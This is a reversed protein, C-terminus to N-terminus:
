GCITFTKYGHNNNYLIKVGNVNFIENYGFDGRDGPVLRGYLNNDLITKAIKNYTGYGREGPQDGANYGEQGVYALDELRCGLAQAQFRLMPGFDQYDGAPDIVEVSYDFGYADLNAKERNRMADFFEHDRMRDAKKLAGQYGGAMDIVAPAGDLDTIMEASQNYGLEDTSLMALKEKSNDDMAIMGKPIHDKPLTRPDYMAENILKKLQRLTLKM